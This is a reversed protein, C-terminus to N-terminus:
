GWGCLKYFIKRGGGSRIEQTIEVSHLFGYLHSSCLISALLIDVLLPAVEAGGKIDIRNELIWEDRADLDELDVPVADSIELVELVLHVSKPLLRSRLRPPRNRRGM